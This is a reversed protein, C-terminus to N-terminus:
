VRLRHDSGRHLFLFSQFLLVTHSCRPPEPSGVQALALPSRNALIITWISSGPIVETVVLRATTGITPTLIADGAEAVIMLSDTQRQSEPIALVSNQLLTKKAEGIALAIVAFVRLLEVVVQVGRRRMSIELHKVLIRLARKGIGPEDFFIAAPAFQIWLELQDVCISEVFVTVKIHEDFIGFGGGFINQHLNVDAVTSGFCRQDMKKWLEPESIGPRPAIVDCSWRQLRHRIVGDEGFMRLKAVVPQVHFTSRREQETIVFCVRSAKVSHVIGGTIELIGEM